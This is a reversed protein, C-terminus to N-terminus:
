HRSDDRDVEPSPIEANSYYANTFPFSIAIWHRLAQYLKIYHGGAYADPTVWWSVDVDYALLGETLPTRRGVPYLYCCGLYRGATDYVAYTFSDGERFECEHWVLDVYNFDETVPETPWRGGRTRRILEISANIGRVDDHLHDRTLARAQIDDYVLETPATWGAPVKLRKVLNQYNM